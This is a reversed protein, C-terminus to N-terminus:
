IILLFLLVKFFFMEVGLRSFVNQFMENYLVFILLRRKSSVFCADVMLWPHGRHHPAGALVPLLFPHQQLSLPM